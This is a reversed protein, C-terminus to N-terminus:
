MIPCIMRFLGVMLVLILVLIEKIEGVFSMNHTSM